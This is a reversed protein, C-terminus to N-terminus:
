DNAPQLPTAPSAKREQDLDLLASQGRPAVVIGKRKLVAGITKFLIHVDLALSRHEVYWTDLALREDWVLRNRGHIQAWGTLGPLVSHRLRERPTYYPLYKPLLPRPGVLSMEGKLVNFLEPLEDLSTHRLFGGLRTLRHREDGTDNDAETMTRFKYLCFLAEDRGPRRQRFLVPSGMTAYICGAIGLMLPTALVLGLASLGVDLGRKVVAYRRSPHVAQQHM